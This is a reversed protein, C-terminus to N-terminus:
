ATLLGPQLNEEEDDEDSDRERATWTVDSCKLSSKRDGERVRSGQLQVRVQSRHGTVGRVREPKPRGTEDPCSPRGLHDMKLHLPASTM